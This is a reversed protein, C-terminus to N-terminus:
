IEGSLRKRMEEAASQNSPKNNIKNVVTALEIKVRKCMTDISSIYKGVASAELLNDIRSILMDMYNFCNSIAVFNDLSKELKRLKSKTLEFDSLYMQLKREEENYISVSPKRPISPIIFDSM